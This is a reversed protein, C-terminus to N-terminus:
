SPNPVSHRRWHGSLPRQKQPGRSRGKEETLRTLPKTIDAFGHIFRRYYTYL